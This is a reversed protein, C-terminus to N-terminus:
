VKGLLSFCFFSVTPKHPLLDKHIRFFNKGFQRLGKIFRKTEEETWKKDIGKAVPCKLLAELAKGPDYGSDHLVDFANITTDDRSAAICGDEECMGQFASISRAATIYMLLDSDLFVNPRWRPDELDRDEDDESRYNEIPQYDPM